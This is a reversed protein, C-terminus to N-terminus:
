KKGIKLKLWDINNIIVETGKLDMYGRMKYINIHRILEDVPINTISEIEELDVHLENLHTNVHKEYLFSILKKEIDSELVLNLQKETNYSRNSLIKILRVVLEPGAEVLKFFNDKDIELVKTDEEAIVTATRPINEFIAMEGIFEGEGLFAVTKLHDKTIKCIKVKGSIIYYLIQQEEYECFLIDGKEYEKGFKDFLAANEFM